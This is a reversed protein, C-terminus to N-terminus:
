EDCLFEGTGRDFRASIEETCKEKNGLEYNVVAKLNIYEDDKEYKAADVYGDIFRYSEDYKYKEELMETIYIQAESMNFAYTRGYMKCSFFFFLILLIKILIAYMPKNFKQGVIKQVVIHLLPCITIAATYGWCVDYFREMYIVSCIMVFFFVTGVNIVVNMVKYISDKKM